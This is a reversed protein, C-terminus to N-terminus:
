GPDDWWPFISVSPVVLLPKSPRRTSLVLNVTSRLHGYKDTHALATYRPLSSEALLQEGLQM